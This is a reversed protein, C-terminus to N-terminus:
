PPGPPPSPRARRLRTTVAVPLASPAPIIAEAGARLLEDPTDYGWAAGLAPLRNARAASMDYRWDGVAVTRAPDLTEARLIHAFLQEKRDLAGGPVSGYTPHAWADLGLERVIVAGINAPKATAVVLRLGAERLEALAAPIGSFVTNMRRGTAAYHTRYIRVADAVRADGLPRLLTAWVEAMPPGIM